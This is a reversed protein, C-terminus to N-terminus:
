PNAGYGASALYNKATDTANSIVALATLLNAKSEANRNQKYAEKLKEADRIWQIGNRRINDVFPRISPSVKAFASRNDKELHVILNFTRNGITTVKEANVVIPDPKTPTTEPVPIPQVNVTVASHPVNATPKACSSLALALAIAFLALQIRKM